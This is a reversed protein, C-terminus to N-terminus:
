YRNYYCSPESVANKLSDAPQLADKTAVRNRPTPPCPFGFVQNNRSRRAVVRRKTVVRNKQDSHRLSPNVYFYLLKRDGAVCKLSVARGIQSKLMVGVSL